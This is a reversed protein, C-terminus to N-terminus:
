ADNEWALTTCWVQTRVPSQPPANYNSHTCKYILDSSLKLVLVILFFDESGAKTQKKKKHLRKASKNLVSFCM